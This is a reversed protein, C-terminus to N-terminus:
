ILGHNLELGVVPEEDCSCRQLIGEFLQPREEVEDHWLLIHAWQLM